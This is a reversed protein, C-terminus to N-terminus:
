TPASCCPWQVTRNRTPTTGMGSWHGNAACLLRLRLVRPAKVLARLLSQCCCSSALSSADSGTAAAHGWERYFAPYVIHSLNRTSVKNDGTDTGLSILFHFHASPDDDVARDRRPWHLVCWAEFLERRIERIRKIPKTRILDRGSRHLYLSICAVATVRRM